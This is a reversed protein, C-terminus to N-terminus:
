NKELISPVSVMKTVIFEFLAVFSFNHLCYDATFLCTAHFDLCESIWVASVIKGDSLVCDVFFFRLLHLDSRWSSSCKVPFELKCLLDAEHFDDFHDLLFCPLFFLFVYFNSPNIQEGQSRRHHPGISESFRSSFSRFHFGQFLITVQIGQTHKPAPSLKNRVVQDQYPIKCSRSLSLCNSVDGM